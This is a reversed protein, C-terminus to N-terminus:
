LSTKSRRGRLWLCVAGAILSVGFGAVVDAAYHYRGYITAISVSIAYALVGWGFRKQRPLLLFMAWAAAFASSVHASPFVGVQITAKRLIWLNFRRVWSTVTPDDMGPFLLRPPQSPFFPLLAYAVLTGTLCILFFRDIEQRKHKVYLTIVCFTGLGYVLLYCTELYIPIAFDLSEIAARLHWDHLLVHDWRVWGQELHRDFQRSAFLNMEEFAVLTLGLPLFDRFRSIAAPFYAEARAVLLLMLGAAVLIWLAPDSLSLGGKWWVAFVAVYAFYCILMRESARLNLWQAAEKL